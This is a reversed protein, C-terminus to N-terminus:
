SELDSFDADASSYEVRKDDEPVLNLAGDPQTVFQKLLAEFATKGLAKEIDGPSKVGQKLYQEEPLGARTLQELVKEEDTWTRNGKRGRVLKYGPWTQGRLAQSRAYQRVDKIWAEAIDAVALIGPIEADDILGPTAFGHTFGRMAEAARAACLAKAKCFRCRDGPRFEGKGKWALEAAPKLKEGWALLEERTLVEESINDINPQVITCKVHTFGYLDGYAALGGLGYLRMQQNGAADVKVGSGNKYDVVELTADSVIVVDGTGFCEPVWQTLDFREEILLKADECVQQAEFLKGMVIDVYLDTAREMASSIKPKKAEMEARIAKYTFDNYEGTMHRLKLEALAHARTGEEAFPSSADGFIGRLKEELRASPTCAPNGKEDLGWRSCASPSLIAHKLPPM